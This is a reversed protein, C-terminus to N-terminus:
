LSVFCLSFAHSHIPNTTTPLSTEAIPQGKDRRTGKELYSQKTERSRDPLLHIQEVQKEELCIKFITENKSPPTRLLQTPGSYYCLHYCSYHFVSTVKQESFRNMESQSDFAKNVAVIICFPLVSNIIWLMYRWREM